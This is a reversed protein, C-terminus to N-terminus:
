WPPRSTRARKTFVSPSEYLLPTRTYRMRNTALREHPSKSVSELFPSSDLARVAKKKLRPSVPIRKMPLLAKSHAMRTAAPAYKANLYLFQVVL